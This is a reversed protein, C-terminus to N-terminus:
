IWRRVRQKYDLYEEGFLRELAQEEPQIQFRNMYLIFGFSTGLGLLNQHWYAYGFLLLFLALYMPNRTYSFIGSDVVSSARDVKVPNVTTDAKRFEYVGAVGIGGALLFCIAFVWGPLPLPLTALHICRSLYNIIVALIIFVAVPPIKRELQEM